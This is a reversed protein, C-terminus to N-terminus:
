LSHIFKMVYYVTLFFCNAIVSPISHDWKLFIYVFINELNQISLYCVLSTSISNGLSLNRYDINKQISLNRVFHM